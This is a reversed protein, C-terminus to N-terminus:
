DSGAYRPTQFGQTTQRHQLHPMAHPEGNFHGSRNLNHGGHGSPIKKTSVRLAKHRRPKLPYRVLYMGNKSIRFLEFSFSGSLWFSDVQVSVWVYM